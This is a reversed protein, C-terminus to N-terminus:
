IKSVRRLTLNIRGGEPFWEKAHDLLNSSNPYVRDIGHYALRTDKELVLVDGSSIEFSSTKGGRKTGGLRFRARDGLSVSVVPADFDDEDRDQHMGMKAGPAYYNILCAEPPAPYDTIESWLDLLSQPMVPWAADTEPHTSQYRYGNKQDSVWGLPGFNSMRVSFEKGTRPMKPVFLPAVRLAASIEDILDIQETKSLQSPFIRM